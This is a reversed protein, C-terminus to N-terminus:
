EGKEDMTRVTLAARGNKQEVRLLWGRLPAQLAFDDLKEPLHPEFRFGEERDPDPRLGALEEIILPIAGSAWPPVPQHEM